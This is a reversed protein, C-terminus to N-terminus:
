PRRRRSRTASPPPPAPGAPSGRPGGGPPLPRPAPGGPPRPPTRSYGAPGSACPAGPRPLSPVHIRVLAGVLGRGASRIDACGLGVVLGARLRVGTAVALGRDGDAEGRLDHP